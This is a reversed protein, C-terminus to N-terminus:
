LMRVRELGDLVDPDVDCIYASTEVPLQKLYYIKVARLDVQLLTAHSLHFRCYHVTCYLVAQDQYTHKRIVAM